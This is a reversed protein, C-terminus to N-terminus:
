RLLERRQDGRQAGADAIVLVDLLEAVVLDDDHGVGVDVPAVDAREEQREEEPVEVLQELVAVDVDRLRRQVLDLLALGLQVENREIIWENSTEMMTALEQNTVVRSPVSMGITPRTSPSVASRYRM